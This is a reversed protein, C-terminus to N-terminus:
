GHPPLFYKPTLILDCKINGNSIQEVTFLEGTPVQDWDFKNADSSGGQTIPTTVTGNGCDGKGIAYTDDNAGQDNVELDLFIGKLRGGLCVAEAREMTEKFEPTLRYNYFNVFEGLEIKPIDPIDFDNTKTFSALGAVISNPPECVARLRIDEIYRRSGTQDDVLGAFALDQCGWGEATFASVLSGAPACIQQGLCFRGWCTQQQATGLQSNVIAYQFGCDADQATEFLRTNQTNLYEEVESPIRLVNTSAPNAYNECWFSPLEVRSPEPIKPLELHVLRPNLTNLIYYSGLVLVLGMIGGWITQQASSIRQANGAALIWRFSGIMMMTVAMIGVSIAFFNYVANIYNPLDKVCGESSGAGIRNLGPIPVQLKIETGCPNKAAQAQVPAASMTFFATVVLNLFVFKLINRRFMHTYKLNIVALSGFRYRVMARGICFSSFGLWVVWLQAALFLLGEKSHIIKM